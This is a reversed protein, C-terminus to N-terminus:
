ESFLVYFISFLTIVNILLLNIFTSVNLLQYTKMAVSINEIIDNM